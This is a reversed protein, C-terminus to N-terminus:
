SRSARGQRPPLPHTLLSTDGILASYGACQRGYGCAYGRSNGSYYKFHMLESELAGLGAESTAMVSGTFQIRMTEVRSTDIGINVTATKPM